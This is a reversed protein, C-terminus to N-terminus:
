KGAKKIPLNDADEWQDTVDNWVEIRTVPHIEWLTSRYKDLHNAHQPDYLLWGSIRVPLDENLWPELNKKTWNPHKIKIRPTPEVVVSTKEGDGPHEALAIHWDTAEEGHWGCNCSESNSKQPKIAVIYGVTQVPAGELKIIPALLATPFKDRNKPAGKPFPLGAIAQWTVDHYSSSLDTRNKRVNTGQDRNDGSGTPGCTLGNLTFDGTVPDAKQWDESVATAAAAEKEAAAPLLQGAPAQERLFKAFVWGQLGDETQIHLFGDKQAADLVEVEVEPLLVRLSKAKTSPTERLHVNRRVIAEEAFLTSALLTLGLFMLLRRCATM